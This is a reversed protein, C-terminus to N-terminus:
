HQITKLTLILFKNGGIYGTHCKLFYHPIDNVRGYFDCSDCDTNDRCLKKMLKLGWCAEAM